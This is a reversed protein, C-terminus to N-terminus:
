DLPNRPALLKLRTHAVCCSGMEFVFCFVFFVGGMGQMQRLAPALKDIARFFFVVYPDLHVAGTLRQHAVTDKFQKTAIEQVSTLVM